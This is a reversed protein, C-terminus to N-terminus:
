ALEVTHLTLKISMLFLHINHYNNHINMNKMIMSKLRPIENDSDQIDIHDGHDM